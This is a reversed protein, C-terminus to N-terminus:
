RLGKEVADQNLRIMSWIGPRKKRMNKCLPLHHIPIYIFITLGRFIQAIIPLSFILSTTRINSYSTAFSNYPSIFSFAACCCSGKRFKQLIYFFHTARRPLGHYVSATLQSEADRYESTGILAAAAGLSKEERETASIEKRACRMKERIENKTM